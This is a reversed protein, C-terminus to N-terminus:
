AFSLDIVQFSLLSSSPNVTQQVYALEKKSFYRASLTLPQTIATTM